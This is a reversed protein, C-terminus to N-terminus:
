LSYFGFDNITLQTDQLLFIAFRLILRATSSSCFSSRDTEANTSIFKDIKTNRSYLSPYIKYVSFLFDEYSESNFYEELFCTYEIYNEYDYLYLYVNSAYSRDDFLMADSLKISPIISDTFELTTVYQYTDHPSRSITFVYTKIGDTDTEVNEYNDIIYEQLIKFPSQKPAEISPEKNSKKPTCSTCLLITSALLLILTNYIIKKM